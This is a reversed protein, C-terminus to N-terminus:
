LRVKIAHEVKELYKETRELPKGSFKIQLGKAQSLLEKAEDYMGELQALHGKNHLLTAYELSEKSYCHAIIKEAATLVKHSEKYKGVNMYIIGLKNYVWGRSADDPAFSNADLWELQEKLYREAIPENKRSVNYDALNMLVFWHLSDRGEKIQSSVPYIDECIKNGEDERQIRILLNALQLSTVGWEYNKAAYSKRVYELSDIQNYTQVFFNLSKEIKEVEKVEISDTIDYNKVLYKYYKKANKIDHHSFVFTSVVISMDTVLYSEDEGHFMLRKKTKLLKDIQKTDGIDAYCLLSIRYVPQMMESGDSGCRKFITKADNLLSLAENWKNENRLSIAKDLLECAYDFPDEDLSKGSRIYSAIDSFGKRQYIDAANNRIEKLYTKLPEIDTNLYPIAKVIGEEYWLLAEDDKGADERNEGIAKIVEFYAFINNQIGLKTECLEKARVLYDYSEEAQDKESTYWAAFYYYDFLTSDAMQAIDAQTIQPFLNKCAEVDKSMLVDNLQQAVERQAYLGCAYFVLILIFLYRYLICSSPLFSHGLMTRNKEYDIM